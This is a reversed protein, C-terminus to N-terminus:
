LWPRIDLNQLLKLHAQDVLMDGMPKWLATEIHLEGLMVDCTEYTHAKSHGTWKRLLNKFHNIWRWFILKVM